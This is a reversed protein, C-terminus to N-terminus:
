RWLTGWELDKMKTRIMGSLEVIMTQQCPRVRSVTNGVKMGLRDPSIGKALCEHDSQGRIMKQAILTTGIDTVFVFLCGQPRGQVIPTGDGRYNPKSFSRKIGLRTGKSSLHIPLPRM